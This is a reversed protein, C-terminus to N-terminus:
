GLERVCFRVFAADKEAEEHSSYAKQARLGNIREFLDVLEQGENSLIGKGIHYRGTQLMNLLTGCCLKLIFYDPAVDKTQLIPTGEKLELAKLVEGKLTELVFSPGLVAELNDLVEVAESLNPVAPQLRKDSTFPTTAVKTTDISVLAQNLLSYVRDFGLEEPLPDRRTKFDYADDVFPLILEEAKLWDFDSEKDGNEEQRFDQRFDKTDDDSEHYEDRGDYEYGDEYEDIKEDPLPIAAVDEDEGQDEDKNEPYFNEDLIKQIFNGEDLIERDLDNQSDRNEAGQRAGITETTEEELATEGELLLVDPTFDALMSEEQKKRRWDFIRGVCVFLMVLTLLASGAYLVFSSVLNERPAPAATESHPLVADKSPEAQALGMNEQSAEQSVVVDPSDQFSSAPRQPPLPSEDQAILPPSAPLSVRLNSIEALPRPTLTLSAVWTNLLTELQKRWYEEYEPFYKVLVLVLKEGCFLSACKYRFDEGPVRGESEQDESSKGAWPFEVGYTAVSLDELDTGVVEQTLKRVNGYRADILDAIFDGNTKELIDAPLPFIRGEKDANWIAFIQLAAGRGGLTTNSKAYLAQQVHFTRDADFGRETPDDKSVLDWGSPLSLLGANQTPIRLWRETDREVADWPRVEASVPEMSIANESAWSRAIFFLVFVFSPVLSKISLFIRSDGDDGYM